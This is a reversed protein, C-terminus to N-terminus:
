LIIQYNQLHLALNSLCLRHIRNTVVEDIFIIIVITVFLNM